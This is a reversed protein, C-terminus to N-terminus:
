PAVVLPCPLIPHLRKPDLRDKFGPAQKKQRTGVVIVDAGVDRATEALVEDLTGVRSVFQPNLGELAPTLRKRLEGIEGEIQGEVYRRFTNRTTSTNLWDDGTMDKWAENVVSLVTLTAGTERALRAALEEAKRAGPTGHTALLIHRFM